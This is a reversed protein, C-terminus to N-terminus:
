LISINKRHPVAKVFHPLKFFLLHQQATHGYTHHNWSATPIGFIFPPLSATPSFLSKLIRWINWQTTQWYSNQISKINKEKIKNQQQKEQRFMKSSFWLNVHLAYVVQIGKGFVLYSAVTYTTVSITKLPGFNLAAWPIWFEAVRNEWVYVFVFPYVFPSLCSSLTYATSPHFHVFIM